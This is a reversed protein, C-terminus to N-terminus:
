IECSKKNVYYKEITKNKSKNYLEYYIFFM